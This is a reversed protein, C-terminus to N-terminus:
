QRGPDESWRLMRLLNYLGVAFGGTAGAILGAPFGAASALWRRDLWNGFLMCVVVAVALETGAAAMVLWRNPAKSEAGM